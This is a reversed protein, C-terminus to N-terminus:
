NHLLSRYYIDIAQLTYTPGVMKFFIVYNDHNTAKNIIYYPITAYDFPPM